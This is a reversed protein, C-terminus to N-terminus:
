KSLISDIEIESQNNIIGDIIINELKNIIKDIKEAGFKTYESEKSIEDITNNGIYINKNNYKEKLKEIKNNIIKIIDKKNLKNFTIIYDIKNIFAANLKEILENNTKSYNNKFGINNQSYGANSIM